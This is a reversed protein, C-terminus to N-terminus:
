DCHHRQQHQDKARQREEQHVDVDEWRDVHRHHHHDPVVRSHGSQVHLAAHNEDALAGIRGRDVPDLV